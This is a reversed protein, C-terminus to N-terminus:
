VAEALSLERKLIADMRKVLLSVPSLQCSGATLLVICPKVLFYLVLLFNVSPKHLIFVGRQKLSV